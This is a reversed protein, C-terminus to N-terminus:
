NHVHRVVVDGDPGKAKPVASVDYTTAAPVGTIVWQVPGGDVPLGKARRRAEWAARRQARREEDTLEPEPAPKPKTAM